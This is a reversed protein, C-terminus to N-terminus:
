RALVTVHLNVFNYDSHEEIGGQRLTFVLGRAFGYTSDNKFLPLLFHFTRKKESIHGSVLLKQSDNQPKRRYVLLPCKMRNLTSVESRASGSLLSVELSLIERITAEVLELNSIDITYVHPKGVFTEM